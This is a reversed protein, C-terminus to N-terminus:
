LGAEPEAEAEYEAADAALARLELAEEIAQERAIIAPLPDGASASAAREAPSVYDPEGPEPIEVPMYLSESAGYDPVWITRSM